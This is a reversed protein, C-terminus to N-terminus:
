CQCRQRAPLRRFCLHSVPEPDSCARSRSSYRLQSDRPGTHGCMSVFPELADTALVSLLLYKGSPAVSRRVHPAPRLSCSTMSRFRLCVCARPRGSGRVFGTLGAGSCALTVEYGVGSYSRTREHQDEADISRGLVLPAAVGRLRGTICAPGPVSHAAPLERGDASPRRARCAAPPPQGHHRGYRPSPIGGDADVVRRDAYLSAAQGWSRRLAAAPRCERPRM